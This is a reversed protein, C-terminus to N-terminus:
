NQSSRQESKARKIALHRMWNRFEDNPQIPSVDDMGRPWVGTKEKYKHAIWGNRYGKEKCFYAFMGFWRRKDTATLKKGKVEVLDAEIAEVDRGYKRMESGCEPCTKESIVASCVPCQMQQKTKEKKKPKKWAVEKGDLSWEIEDTVYGHEKVVGAHDLMLLDTKGPSVRLGRGVCQRYKGLSKTPCAMVVCSIDPVDMGEVYLAVNCIVKVAGNEMAAFAAEREDDTSKADLHIAPVGAAIFADRLYISHKVNVAFVITKRGEGLRLWNEVVDGIVKPKSMREALERNEYDGLVVRVGSLDVDSPAFYRVSSLFGMETLAAVDIVDLLDDYVDGLGRGDSRAPTATTGIIVKDKYANFIDIYRKSITTHAEDTLIIDADIFFRNFGLEDLNMRRHYTQVTSVYVYLGPEFEVGAMVTGAVIGHFKYLTEAFQKVLNRRHVLFLCKSGKQVALAIIAAYIVSKGAGTPLVLLPRKHGTSISQRTLTVAKEQYDRLGALSFPAVAHRHQINYINM